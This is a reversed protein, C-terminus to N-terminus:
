HLWEVKEIDCDEPGEVEMVAGMISGSGDDYELSPDYELSVEYEEALREVAEWFETDEVPATLEVTKLEEVLEFSLVFSEINIHHHKGCECAFKVLMTLGGTESDEDFFTDIVQVIADAEIHRFHKGALLSM